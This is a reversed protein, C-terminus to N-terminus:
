RRPLGDHSPTQRIPMWGRLPMLCRGVWRLVAMVALRRQAKRARIHNRRHDEFADKPQGSPHYRSSARMLDLNVVHLM